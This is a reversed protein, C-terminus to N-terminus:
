EFGRNMFEKLGMLNNTTGIDKLGRQCKLEEKPKPQDLKERCICFSPPLASAQQWSRITNHGMNTIRVRLVEHVAGRHLVSLVEKRKDEALDALSVERSQMDDQLRHGYHWRGLKWWQVCVQRSQINLNNLAERFANICYHLGALNLLLNMKPKFFFMEVDQFGFQMSHMGEFSSFDPDLFNLILDAKKAMEAHKTAYVARWGKVNEESDQNDLVISHLGDIKVYLNGYLILGVYIGGSCSGVSCLDSVQLSSVIKFDLDYPLFSEICKNKKM